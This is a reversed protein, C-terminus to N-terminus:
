VLGLTAARAYITWKKGHRSHTILFQKMEEWKKNKACVCVAALERIKQM